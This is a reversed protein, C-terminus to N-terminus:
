SQHYIWVNPEVYTCVEEQPYMKLPVLGGTIYKEVYEKGKGTEIRLDNM